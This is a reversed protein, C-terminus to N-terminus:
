ISFVYRMEAIPTASASMSMLLARRGIKKTVNPRAGPSITNHIGNSMAISTRTIAADTMKSLASM